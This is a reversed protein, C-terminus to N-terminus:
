PCGHRACIRGTMTRTDAVDCPVGAILGLRPRPAVAHGRRDPGRGMLASVGGICRGGNVVPSARANNDILSRRGVFM